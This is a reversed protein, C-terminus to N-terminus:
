ISPLAEGVFDVGGFGKHGGEWGGAVGAGAFNKGWFLELDDVGREAFGLGVMLLMGLVDLALGFTEGEDVTIWLALLRIM